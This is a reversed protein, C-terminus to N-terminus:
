SQERGWQLIREIREETEKRMKKVRAEVSAYREPNKRLRDLEQKERALAGQIRRDVEDRLSDDIKSYDYTNEIDDSM